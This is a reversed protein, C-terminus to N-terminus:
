TNSILIWRSQNPVGGVTLNNTYIFAISQNVGITKSVVGLLFRNIDTSSSSEQQFIQNKSSNNVIVIYRGNVGDTFGTINSSTEGTITYYSFRDSLNYNNINAASPINAGQSLILTGTFSAPGTPGTIGTEGTPGTISM